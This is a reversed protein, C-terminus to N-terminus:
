DALLRNQLDWLRRFLGNRELLEAQTGREVIRGQELVLIEDMNELGVLRHTILLLSHGGTLSFLTDLIRSETLTDLNATPEDLLFLPADQLLLRAIALRQREGASLRLGREGIVTEYGQPLGTVFDHIQARQAAEQIEAASAGPRALLLNQRLTDNFFWARQSLCGIQRRVQDQPYAHLDRGNLLIQGDSYEWFRCLLNTLTTKGAGSPGVIALRGNPKLSFSIGQLVTSRSGPYTFNVQSFEIVPMDERGARSSEPQELMGPRDRVEPEVDVIEFLRRAAQASASLTQAAQPLPMIAEFGALAALTLVALLVGPIRGAAVLPISGALVAVMGLNVLFVVSGGTLGTLAALRRQTNGYRKGDEQLREMFDTGGGFALLDALGQIGDVLRAQLGARQRVLQAGPNRSLAWALFPVGLGLLLLFALYTWALGASYTGFFIVMGIAVLLAVLSPSVVRVYFDELTEVDAVIRNLLDGSRYQMLRAPALPELKQYFWVRLRALLRFTVNHSTLREAYRFIGRAIGFFRVGVIAVQLTGLEPHLAAASILYASTSMLGVNSGVTLTGLVVSLAVWGWSGRLFAFLRALIASSPHEALAPQPDPGGPRIASPTNISDSPGNAFGSKIIAPKVLSAYFGGQSLLARHTGSEIMRGKELVIIKDAQFVTNLRHAITIVSRGRRLTHLSAEVLTEQEPDLSSTPEDLLLVPANKLFARALALRQAQGSSLRAGEEGIITEIGDPLTQVFEFLHAMRLADALEAESADPRALRLNNAISDHFLFPNQPVWAFWRRWTEHSIESSPAGNLTLQGAQPEIFRLLLAVITSKGAGSPGVLAIQEGAHIELTFDQLAAESEGPYTYSLANCTILTEPSLTEALSNQNGIGSGQTVPEKTDLIEYIRRAASTGAMGAHFRLGLMRLPIYFEPALLLLFLAPQFSMHGYLLRLGVEVAVLATSVTAVLELVLASLFTIRLVDLTIDRFRNSADAISQAHAKSQGLEKLTTLGQLSDFFHASLRSLTDWQRKTLTEATRGILYMFVPILPATLLLILGSLPDQPFVVLLISLPVLAAIVLQPIYQSFYADLAEVGEVAANVLEGTREAHTYAPGLRLIKDFLRRRLDEKVRVAVANASVENGWALVARLFIILLIVELLGSVGAVGQGGLFVREVVQSLASAQGITLLGALFGTLITAALALRSDRALSLLRRQM